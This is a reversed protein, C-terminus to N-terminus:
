RSRIAPDTNRVATRFGSGGPAKWSAMARRPLSPPCFLTGRRALSRAIASCSNPWSQVCFRCRRRRRPCRKRCPCRRSEGARGIRLVPQQGECPRSNGAWRRPAERRPLRLGVEIHRPGQGQVPEGGIEISQPGSLVQLNLAVGEILRPDLGLRQVNGRHGHDEEVAQEHQVIFAHAAPKVERHQNVGSGFTPKGPAHQAILRLAAQRGSM